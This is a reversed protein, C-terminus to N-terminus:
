TRAATRASSPRYATTSSATASTRAASTHTARRPTPRPCRASRHVTRSASSCRGRPGMWVGLKTMDELSYGTAILETKTLVNLAPESMYEKFDIESMDETVKALVADQLDGATATAWVKVVLTRETCRVFLQMEDVLQPKRRALLRMTRSSRQCVWALLRWEEPNLYVFKSSLRAGDEASIAGGAREIPSALDRLGLRRLSM